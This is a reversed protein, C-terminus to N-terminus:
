LINFKYLMASRALMFYKRKNSLRVRKQLIEAPSSRKIKRLLGHFYIYSLYVGFKADRPLQKIGELGHQFDQEIDEEIEHKITENFEHMDVNPFYTRGLSQYDANLDRLFNIKQYASGLSMAYPKLKLYQEENGDCFIKLCMLGVVEASGLIYRKYLSEDYERKNLDMEMSDLFLDILERDINYENVVLQFSNLIPNLSIKEDVSRYVDERFRKLLEEKDFEHFTDVIEDALRVMGYIAYIPEHFRMNLFRIGLSFSTSYAQTTLASTKFSIKDYLSKM